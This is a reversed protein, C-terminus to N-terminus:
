VPPMPVLPRLRHETLRRLIRIGCLPCVVSLLLSVRLLASKDRVNGRTTRWTKSDFCFCFFHIKIASSTTSEIPVQRPQASGSQRMGECEWDCYHWCCCCCCCCGVLLCCRCCCRCCCCAHRNKMRRRSATMADNLNVTGAAPTRTPRFALLRCCRRTSSSVRAAM